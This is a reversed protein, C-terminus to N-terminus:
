PIYEINSHLNLPLAARKKACIHVRGWQPWLDGRCLLRGITGIYVECTSTLRLWNSKAVPKNQNIDKKVVLFSKPLREFTGNLHHSYIYIVYDSKSWIQSFINEYLKRHYTQGWKKNYTTYLTVTIPVGVIRQLNM